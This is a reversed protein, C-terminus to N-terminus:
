WNRTGLQGGHVTVRVREELRVITARQEAITARLEGVLAQLTAVVSPM